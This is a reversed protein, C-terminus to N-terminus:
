APLCVCVCVSKLTNPIISEMYNFHEEKNSIAKPLKTHRGSHRPGMSGSICMYDVVCMKCLDSQVNVYGNICLGPGVFTNIVYLHLLKKIVFGISSM